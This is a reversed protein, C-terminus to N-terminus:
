LSQSGWGPIIICHHRMPLNPVGAMTTFFMGSIQFFHTLGISQRSIHRQMDSCQCSGIKMEKLYPALSVLVTTLANVHYTVTRLALLSIHRQMDSCQCSGIKMEKLYPALSVLVTTLANVHYTVTRLALVRYRDKVIEKAMVKAREKRVEDLEIIVRRSVSMDSRDSCQLRIIINNRAQIGGMGSPFMDFYQRHRIISIMLNLANWVFTNRSGKGQRQSMYQALNNRNGQNVAMNQVLLRRADRVSDNFGASYHGHHPTQQFGGPAPLFPHTTMLPDTPPPIQLTLSLHSILSDTLPVFIVFVNASIQSCPLRLSISTACRGLDIECVFRITLGFSNYGPLILLLSRFTVWLIPTGFLHIEQVM